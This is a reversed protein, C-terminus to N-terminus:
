NDRRKVYSKDPYLFVTTVISCLIIFWLDNLPVEFFRLGPDIPYSWAGLKIAFYDWPYSIFVVALSVKISIAICRKSKVKLICFGLVFLTFCVNFVTYSIM